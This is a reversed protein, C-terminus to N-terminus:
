HNRTSRGFPTAAPWADVSWAPRERLLVVHWYGSSGLGCGDANRLVPVGRRENGDRGSTLDEVSPVDFEGLGAQRRVRVM